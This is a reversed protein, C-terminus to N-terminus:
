GLLAVSKVQAFVKKGTELGLTSASKRTVRALLPVGGVDLRVMVQSPNEDAISEVTAPLINLISTNSQHELTISVDRAPVRLRVARGIPEIEAAFRM